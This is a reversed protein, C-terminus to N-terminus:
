DLETFETIGYDLTLLSWDTSTSSYITKEPIKYKPHWQGNPLLLQIRFRATSRLISTPNSYRNYYFTNISIQIIDIREFSIFVNSGFNNGSAENYMFSDGISPTSTSGTKGTPSNTKTARSFKKEQM